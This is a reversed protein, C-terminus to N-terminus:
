ACTSRATPGSRFVARPITSRRRPSASTSRSATSRRPVTLRGRYRDMMARGRAVAAPDRDIGWVRCDASDLLARSYGGAGFTGDLYIAGKRPALVELVERLMVPTHGGAQDAPAGTM